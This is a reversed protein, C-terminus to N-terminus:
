SAVELTGTMGGGAHFRCIFEVSGSDPMTVTVETEDGPQLEEDIDQDELTFTHPSDGTNSVTITLEEGAAGEVTVPAFAFDTAAIATTEAETPEEAAPEEAAPEADDGGACASFMLTAALVLGLLKKM